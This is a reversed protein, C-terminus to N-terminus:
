ALAATEAILTYEIRWALPEDVLLHVEGGAAITLVRAQILLGFNTMLTVSKTWRSKAASTGVEVHDFVLGMHEAGHADVLVSIHSGEKRLRFTDGILLDEAGKLM